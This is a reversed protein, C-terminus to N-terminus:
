RKQSLPGKGARAALWLQINKARSDADAPLPNPLAMKNSIRALSRLHLAGLTARLDQWTDYDQSPVDTWVQVMDKEPLTVRKVDWNPDSRQSTPEPTPARETSPPDASNAPSPSHVPLRDSAPDREKEKNQTKGAAADFTSTLNRAADSSSSSGSMMNNAATATMISLQLCAAEKEARLRKKETDDMPQHPKESTSAPPSSFSRKLGRM